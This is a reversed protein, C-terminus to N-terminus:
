AAHDCAVLDAASVANQFSREHGEPSRNVERLLKSPAFTNMSTEEAIRRRCACPRGQAAGSLNGRHSRHEPKAAMM